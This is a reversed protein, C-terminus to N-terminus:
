LKPRQSHPTQSNGAAPTFPTRAAAYKDMFKKAVPQILDHDLLFGDHGNHSDVMLFDSNPLLRHLERQEIPPYLADSSVSIVLAPMTLQSLAQEVGGRDRGLDHSDMMRTVKVYCLADFRSPFKVGQYRLYKEVQFYVVQGNAADGGQVIKRGFKESYAQHSRYTIMAMQRAVSLGLAPEEGPKKLYHGGKWKPDAYIAQRQAESIGIQWPRQWAGCSMPIICRVFEPGCIYAWELTQMGGLSGGVVCAVSSARLHEKVLRIHMKVSDRVTVDPFDPGYRKGTAPNITTPGTTGYCSGLVNACVILYKTPDLLRGPGFIAKWWDNVAANGTLAHCVVVCNDRAANFEGLKRYRVQPKLLIAGSELQFQDMVFTEGRDDMVGYEDEMKGGQTSM